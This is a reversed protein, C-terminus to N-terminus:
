DAEDLFEAFGMTELFTRWRADGRLTRRLLPGSQIQSVGPDRQERARELWEFAADADGRHAYVEAIQFASDGAGVEILRDLAAQAQAPREAMHHVM